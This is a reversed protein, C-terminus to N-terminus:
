HPIYLMQPYFWSSPMLSVLSTNNQTTNPLPQTRQHIADHLFVSGDLVFHVQTESLIGPFVFSPADPIISQKPVFWMSDWLSRSERRRHRKCKRAEGEELEHSPFVSRCSRDSIMLAPSPLAAESGGRLIISQSLWLISMFLIFWSHQFVYTQRAEWFVLIHLFCVGVGLLVLFFCFSCCFGWVQSTTNILYNITHGLGQNHSLNAINISTIWTYAPPFREM